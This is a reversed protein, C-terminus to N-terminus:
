LACEWVIAVRWGVLRLDTLNRQDRAANGSIKTRWFEECSKPWKFLHCEHGHWFCGYVFIAAHYKPFVLEPKDPLKKDHLRYRLGRAYLGQRLILEPKTSTGKIAAMNRSRTAANHVDALAPWQNVAAM